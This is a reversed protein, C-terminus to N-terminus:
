EFEFEFEFFSLSVTSTSDDIVLVRENGMVMIEGRIERGMM